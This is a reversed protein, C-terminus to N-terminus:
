GGAGAGGTALAEHCPGEGLTLQLEAVKECDPGTVCLVHDPGRGGAATVWAGGAGAASVAVACVDAASM